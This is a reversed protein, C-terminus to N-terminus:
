VSGKLYKVSKDLTLLYKERRLSATYEIVCLRGIIRPCSERYLILIEELCVIRLGQYIYKIGEGIGKKERVM